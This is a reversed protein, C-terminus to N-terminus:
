GLDVPVFIRADGREILLAVRKGAKAILARLQEPSSVQEGNVSVIIDGPQIGARAAAGGANEVLLGGKVEAQRQEQPSLPRVAIGLRGKAAEPTEAAAVKADSFSGVKVDIERAAGHRWVQLKATEGASMAAVAAPLDGSNVIEKGNISLIM